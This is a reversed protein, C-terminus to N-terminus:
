PKLRAKHSTPNYQYSKGCSPCKMTVWGSSKSGSEVLNARKSAYAKDLAPSPPGKSVGFVKPNITRVKGCHPCTVKIAQEPM